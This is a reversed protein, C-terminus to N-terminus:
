KVSKGWISVGNKNIGTFVITTKSKEYDWSPIVKCEYEQYKDNEDKIKISLTNKGTFKWSGSANNWKVEGNVSLVMDKSKIQSNYDKSLIIAQWDGPIVSKDVKQEEEGAYREPSIMPWGDESWLIKRVNLYPWNINKGGRAHHVIYYDNKDKLISNHGTAQWGEDNGFKYGGLVKNGIDFPNDNVDTMFKGNSDVYPGDINKSRGVRVNYDKMLSGYSVFLYYYNYTSNYTIYPGEVAGQVSSNRSAINKGEGYKLLKGTKNDLRSIYIGSWFSGYCMWENGEKDRVINPDIANIDDTSDTKFVEGLDKYPGEVSKSIAMGIISKNVGFQSAAYYLYYYDGRKVIDPAWLTTAGAWNVATEPVGGEFAYGVFQWNMLDKSKRIQIGPRPAAGVKCDTSFIYYMDGDKFIGPDHVNLNGWKKEDNLVTDDYMKEKVIRKPFRLKAMGKEKNIQPIKHIYLCTGAILIAAISTGIIILKRKM